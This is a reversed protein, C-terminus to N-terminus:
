KELALRFLLITLIITIPTFILKETTAESALNGVINFGFYACIVIVAYNIANKYKIFKDQNVKLLVIGLFIFSTILSFIELKLLHAKDSAKGGWVIDSPVVGLLLLIHFIILLVLLTVTIKGALKFSILKKM